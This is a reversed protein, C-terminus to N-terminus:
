LMYGQGRRTTLFDDPVGLSALTKRLRNVNVTLTNDDIFADSEWLECMIEQRTIVLGPNRMLIHLIKQENRTLETSRGQYSVTGAGVNLAVGGHEIVLEDRGGSSRRIASQIRAILVAPSYPKTVFDDAGLNMGMVEDFESESSTLMIIPVDSRARIDRCISHGDTGPLKLDLVVCDPRAAVADSAATAFTSCWSVDFGQLELLHGLETRLAEDDEIIYIRSM